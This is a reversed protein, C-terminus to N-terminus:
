IKTKWRMGFLLRTVKTRKIIFHYVLGIVSICILVLLLLKPLIGIDWQLIYYGSAVIVAQHMIYYPYVAQNLYSLRKNSVNLYRMTYGIAALIITWIHFGNLVGFRYLYGDQTLPKNASWEWFYLGILFSALVLAILLFRKRYRMCAEWFTPFASLSFGLVYFTMSSLFVYWDDILSGQEPWEIYLGFIYGVFPLGLLLLVFWSNFLKTVATAQSRFWPIKATAFVPMLILTFVFLYAVFWMHSWTFSGDPYPVIEFVSPYFESYGMSIKEKQLWEFYVQIPTIFFIAFVLPIFLRIIREGLFRGLSRKRLSFRVGVGSIFFLLPLRWQHVWWIIRTITPSTRDNNIEWSYDEVFPVACHFVILTSFALVRLWDIYHLRETM